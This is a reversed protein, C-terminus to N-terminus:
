RRAAVRFSRITTVGDDVETYDGDADDDEDRAPAPTALLSARLMPLPLRSVGPPVSTRRPAFVPRLLITAQTLDVHIPAVPPAPAVPASELRSPTARVGPPSTAGVRLDHLITWIAIAGCLASLVLLSVVLGVVLPLPVSRGAVAVGTGCELCAFERPAERGM